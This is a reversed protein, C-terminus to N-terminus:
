EGRAFQGYQARARELYAMHAEGATAFYGLNKSRKNITIRAQWRGRDARWTVGKVGSASKHISNANNQSQTALRLNDLRNNSPDKDAHDIQCGPPIPGRVMIWALRHALYRRGNIRISVYGYLNTGALRGPMKGNWSAALDDRYRWRFEGSEAHYDLMLRLSEADIM